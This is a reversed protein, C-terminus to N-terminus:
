FLLLFAAAGIEFLAKGWSFDDDKKEEPESCKDDTWEGTITQGNSMTLCGKGNKMDDSWEGKYLSGDKYRMVGKGSRKDDSWEGDYTEGDKYKMVGKGSMKGIRWEGIYSTEPTKYTGFGHFLDAYWDGSYSAGNATKWNGKGHRKGSQWDGVYSQSKSKFVGKGHYQDAYWGGIYTSGDFNLWKGQGHKKGNQWEGEYKENKSQFTGKGEYKDSKWEGVYSSGDKNNLTGSGSREGYAWTGVYVSGDAYKMTGEGSYLSDVFSGKYEIGNAFSKCGQGNPMDKDWTGIYSYERCSYTGYGCRLDNVWDGEYMSSDSYVMHGKGVRKGKVMKGSFTANGWRYPLQPTNLEYRKSIKELCTNYACVCNNYKNYEKESADDGIMMTKKWDNVITLLDIDINQYQNLSDDIIADITKICGDIFLNYSVITDPYRDYINDDVVQLLNKNKSALHLIKCSKNYDKALLCNQLKDPSAYVHYLLVVFATMLTSLIGWKSRLLVGLLGVTGIVSYWYIDSQWFMGIVAIVPLLAYFFVRNCLFNKTALPLVLAVLVVTWLSVEPVTYILDTIAEM